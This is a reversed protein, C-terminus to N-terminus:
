LVTQVPQESLRKQIRFRSTSSGATRYPTEEPIEEYQQFGQLQSDNSFLIENPVANTIKESEHEYKKNQEYNM